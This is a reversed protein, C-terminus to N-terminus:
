RSPIYKINLNKIITEIKLEPILRTPQSNFKTWLVLKTMTTHLQFFFIQFILFHLCHKRKQTEPNKNLEQKIAPDSEILTEPHAQLSKYTNPYKQNAQRKLKISPYNTYYTYPHLKPCVKKKTPSDM